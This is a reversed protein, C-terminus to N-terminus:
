YNPPNEVVPTVHYDIVMMRLVTFKSSFYVYKLSFCRAFFQLKGNLIKKLLHSWVQLLSRIQDCKSFFDKISFQMEKKTTCCILRNNGENVESCTMHFIICRKFYLICLLSTNYLFVRFTWSFSEVLFM